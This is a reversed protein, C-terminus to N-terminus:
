LEEEEDPISGVEDFWIGSHDTDDYSSMDHKVVDPVVTSFGTFAALWSFAKFFISM